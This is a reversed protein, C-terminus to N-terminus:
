SLSKSLSWSHPWVPVLVPMVVPVIVPVLVPVLLPALVPVLLPILVAALVPVLVLVIVPLLVCLLSLSSSSPLTVLQFDLTTSLDFAPLSHSNTPSAVATTTLERHITSDRENKTEIEIETQGAHQPTFQEIIPWALCRCNSHTYWKGSGLSERGGM